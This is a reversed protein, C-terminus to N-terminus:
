AKGGVKLINSLFELDEPSNIGYSEISNKLKMAGIKLNKHRFIKVLDPLYYESQANDNGVSGLGDWIYESSFCYTGTNVEQVTREEETADKEEVIRLVSGDESDRIIRGYGKPNDMSASLLTAAYGGTNHLEILDAFSKSSIMPADGCAVLITGKFAKLADKCVLVAHGTGLQEKQEVFQINSKSSCAAIVEEKKYGVVILSQQVGANSLHDLVHIILPKGALETVVKPHDSKMRTGKGAALIVATINHEIDM